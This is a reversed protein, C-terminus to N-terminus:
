SGSSVWPICRRPESKGALVGEVGGARVDPHNALDGAGEATSGNAAQPSALPNAEPACRCRAM